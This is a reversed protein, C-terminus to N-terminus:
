LHLLHTVPLHTTVCGAARAKDMFHKVSQPLGPLTVVKAGAARRLAVAALQVDLVGRLCVGFQHSLADSDRRVDWALKTITVDELIRRLSLPTGDHAAPEAAFAGPGLALIDFVYVQSATAVQLVTLQGSRSLRVGETDVAVTAAAAIAALAASFAAGPADILVTRADLVARFDAAATATQQVRPVATKRQASAAGAAAPAEVARRSRKHAAPAGDANGEGGGAAAPADEARVARKRAAPADVNVTHVGTAAMADFQLRNPVHVTGAFGAGNASADAEVQAAFRVVAARGRLGLTASWHRVVARARDPFDTEAALSTRVAAGVADRTAAHGPPWVEAGLLAAAADDRWLVMRVCRSCHGWLKSKCQESVLKQEVFFRHLAADYPKCGAGNGCLATDRSSHEVALLCAAAMHLM